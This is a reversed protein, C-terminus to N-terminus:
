NMGLSIEEIKDLAWKRRGHQTVSSAVERGRDIHGYKALTVALGALCKAGDIDSGQGDTARRVAEELYRLAETKDGFKTVFEGVAELDYSRKTLEENGNSALQAVMRAIDLAQTTDGQGVRAQAVRMLVETNEACYQTSACLKQAWDLEGAEVLALGARFIISPRDDEPVLSINEEVQRLLRFAGEQFEKGYQSSTAFQRTKLMEIAIRIFADYKWFLLSISNAIQESLAFQYAKAIRASLSNILSSRKVENTISNAFKRMAENKAAPVYEPSVLAYMLAERNGDDLRGQPEAELISHLLAELDPDM